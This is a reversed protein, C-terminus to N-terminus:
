PFLSAAIMSMNVTDSTSSPPTISFHGGGSAGVDNWWGSKGCAWWTFGILTDGNADLYTVFDNWNATANTAGAYMGIEGVFVRVGNARAWDVAVKVRTRSVTSSVVTTTSGGADTDAYSHVNAVLKGVPDLLPLGVGRANAWGYANSRKTAATDYSSDTWSGAGTWGNGPVHIDGGFGTGRIATVAAQAAAFWTMTSMNNPENVLGIAVRPNSAYVTAMKSWFDAFHASTVVGGGVVNGRWTPGGTNGSTSAQWPEVLVTMGKVNTAYNVIRNYDDFYSKYNGSTAAPIPGNLTAQMREWSFLFRIVKMNKAALYDITQTAHVAYDSDPVPGSSQNFSYGGEMGVLNTGRLSVTGTTPTVAPIAVPAAAPAVVPAPPTVVPAAPPSTAPPSTPPSTAPPAPTPIPPTGAVAEYLGAGSSVSTSGSPNTVVVDYTGPAKAPTVCTIHTSDVWAVSTCASGGVSVALGHGGSINTGYVSMTTGGAAALVSPSIGSVALAAAGRRGHAAVTTSDLSIPPASEGSSGGADNSGGCATAVCLICLGLFALARRSPSLPNSM